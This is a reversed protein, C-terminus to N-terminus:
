ESEYDIASLYLIRCHSCLPAHSRPSYFAAGCSLCSHKTFEIETDVLRSAVKQPTIMPDYMPPLEKDNIAVAVAKQHLLMPAFKPRNFM